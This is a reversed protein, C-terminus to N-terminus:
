TFYNLRVSFCDEALRNARFTQGPHSQHRKLDLHQKSVDAQQGPLLRQARVLHLHHPLSLLHHSLRARPHPDARVPRCSLHRLAVDLQSALQHGHLGPGRLQRQHVLQGRKSWVDPVQGAM